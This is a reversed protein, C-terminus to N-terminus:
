RPDGHGLPAAASECQRPRGLEGPASWCSRARDTGDRQRSQRCSRAGRPRAASRIQVPAVHSRMHRSANTPSGSAQHFSAAPDARRAARAPRASRVSTGYRESSADPAPVGRAARRRTAPPAGQPCVLCHRAAGGCWRVPAASPQPLGCRVIGLMARVPPSATRVGADAGAPTGTPRTCAALPANDSGPSM